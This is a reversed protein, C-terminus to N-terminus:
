KTIDHDQQTILANAYKTRIEVELAVAKLLVDELELLHVIVPDNAIRELLIKDM